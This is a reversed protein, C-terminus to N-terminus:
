GLFDCVTFINFISLELLNFLLLYFFITFLFIGLIQFNTLQQHALFHQQNEIVSDVVLISFLLIVLISATYVMLFAIGLFELELFLFSSGTFLLIFLSNVVITSTRNSSFVFNSIKCFMFVFLLLEFLYM